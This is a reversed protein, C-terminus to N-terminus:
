LMIRFGVVRVRMVDEPGVLIGVCVTLNGAMCVLRVASQVLNRLKHRRRQRSGSLADGTM